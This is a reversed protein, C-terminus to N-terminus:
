FPSKWNQLSEVFRSTLLDNHVSETLTKIIDDFTVWHDVIKINKTSHDPVIYVVLPKIKKIDGNRQNELVDLKKILHAYKAKQKSAASVTRVVEFLEHVNKEKAKAYADLQKQTVSRVDTKLEIFYVISQSATHAFVAYDIKFTRYDESETLVPFEPIVTFEEASLILQKGALIKELYIAFFIDSRRELQYSPLNRWDDLHDFIRDISDKTNM